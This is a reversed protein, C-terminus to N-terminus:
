VTNRVKERVVELARELTEEKEWDTNDILVADPAPKLAGVPRKQDSLDRALIEAKAKTLDIRTPDFDIMRRRAREELTANLFIKVDAEPFVVTGADRGEAVVGLLRRPEEDDTERPLRDAIQRQLQVLADRVAPHRSIASAVVSVENSTLHDTIDEGDLFVRDDEEGPRAPKFDIQASRVLEAAGGEDTPDVGERLAKLALARYTAGTNLYAIGLAQAL